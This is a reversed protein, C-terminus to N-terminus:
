KLEGDNEVNPEKEDIIPDEYQMDKVRVCKGDDELYVFDDRCKMKVGLKM